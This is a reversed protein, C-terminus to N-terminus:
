LEIMREPLDREFEAVQQLGDEVLSRLRQQTAPRSLIGLVHAYTNDLKQRSALGIRETIVQKAAAIAAHDFTSIRHALRDVFSDLESDPLARNIWGYREATIADFEDAGCIAEIARAAWCVPCASRVVAVPFSAM